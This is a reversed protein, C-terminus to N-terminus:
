FDKFSSIKMILFTGIVWLVAAVILLTRGLDTGFMVAFYKPNSQSVMFFFVIPLGSMVIAQLKGQLTLVKVNEEIKRRERLTAVIRTFVVPLNGGTERSLLIATVMQQLAPSPLKQYLRGLADELPVGMKNESVLFGFEQKIPNGMEEVVAEIAQVLSLGGRFSSSMILLADILQQNFQDRHMSMLFGAYTRPIIFGIVGGVVVGLLRLEAPLLVFGFGASLFPGLIYFTKVKQIDEDIMSRAVEKEFDKARRQNIDLMMKLIFPIGFSAFLAVSLFALFLIILEM